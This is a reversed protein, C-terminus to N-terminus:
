RKGLFEYSTIAFEIAQRKYTEEFDKGLLHYLKELRYYLTQRAIFLQNATEKKSGNTLLYVKLTNLLESNNEKDYALVSGLYDDIFEHLYGNEKALLVLRLIHLDDYYIINQKEMRVARSEEILLTENATNYAEKIDVLNSIFKGVSFSLKSKGEKLCFESQFLCEIGESIREKWDSVDRYNILMFILHNDRVLFYSFYGKENFIMRVYAKFQTFQYEDDSLEDLESLVVVCGNVVINPYRKAFYMKVQEETYAGELWQLAWNTEETKKRENIYLNRFLSQALATVTRDILLSEFETIWGTIVILEALTQNMVQVTFVKNQSMLGLSNDNILEQIRFKEMDNNMFIHNDGFKPIYVIPFQLYNHLQELIKETPNPTLLIQNLRNSYSELDSIMQYHKQLLLTHIDQTIDVFRVKSNFVILPFNYQNALSIIQDPIAKIYKGLEICLASVNSDIFERFLQLFEEKEINWGVGTSLILEHGNLLHKVDTIEIVHIWNVTRNLGKEGAIVEANKFENRELIAQVTLKFNNKM